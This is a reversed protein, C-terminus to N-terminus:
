KVSLMHAKNVFVPMQKTVRKNALNESMDNTFLALKIHFYWM